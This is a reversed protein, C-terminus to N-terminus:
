IVAAVSVSFLFSLPVDSVDAAAAVTATVASQSPLPLHSETSPLLFM